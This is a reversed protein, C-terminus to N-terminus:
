KGGPQQDKAGAKPEEEPLLEMTTATTLKMTSVLGAGEMSLKMTMAQKVSNSTTVGRKTDFSVELSSTGDTLELDFMAMAPNTDFEVEGEVKEHPKLELTSTGTIAALGEPSVKTLRHKVTIVIDDNAMQTRTTSDWTGGVAVPKGPYFAESSRMSRLMGKDSAGGLMAAIGERDEESFEKYMAELMANFGRVATLKGQADYTLTYDGALMAKYNRGLNQDGEDPKESTWQVDADGGTYSYSMSEYKLAVTVEGKDDIGTCTQRIVQRKVWKSTTTRKSRAAEEVQTVESTERWRFSGGVKWLQAITYTKAEAETAKDPAPKDQAVAQFAAAFLSLLTLLLRTRM